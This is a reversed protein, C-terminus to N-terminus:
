ELLMLFIKKCKREFNKWSNLEKKHKAIWYFPLFNKKTNKANILINILNESILISDIKALLLTNKHKQWKIYHSWNKWDSTRRKQTKIMRSFAAFISFCTQEEKRTNQWEPSHQLNKFCTHGKQKGKNSKEQTANSSLCSITSSLISKLHNKSCNM